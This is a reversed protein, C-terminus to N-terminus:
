LVVLSDRIFSDFETEFLGFHLWQRDNETNEENKKEKDENEDEEEEESDEDENEADEAEKEENQKERFDEIREQEEIASFFVFEIKEREFYEAWLKRQELSM